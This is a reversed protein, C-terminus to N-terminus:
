STLHVFSRRSRTLAGDACGTMWSMPGAPTPGYSSTTPALCPLREISHTLLSCHALSLRGPGPGHTQHSARALLAGTDREAVRNLRELLLGFLRPGTCTRTENVRLWRRSTISEYEIPEM